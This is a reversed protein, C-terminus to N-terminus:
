DIAVTCYKYVFSDYDSKVSQNALALIEDYNYKPSDRFISPNNPHSVIMEKIAGIMLADNENECVFSDLAHKTNLYFRACKDKKMAVALNLYKCKGRIAKVIDEETATM